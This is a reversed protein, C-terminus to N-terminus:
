FDKYPKFCAKLVQNIRREYTKNSSPKTPELISMDKNKKLWWLIHMWISTYIFSIMTVLLEERTIEKSIKANLLSNAIFFDQDVIM